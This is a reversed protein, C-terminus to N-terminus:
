EWFVIAHYYLALILLDFLLVDGWFFLRLLLALIPAMLVLLRQIWQSLAQNLTEPNSLLKSVGALMSNLFTLVLETENESDKIKKTPLLSHIFSLEYADLQYARSSTAVALEEELYRVCDSWIDLEVESLKTAPAFPVVALTSDIFLCDHSSVPPASPQHSLEKTALKLKFSIFLTETFHFASFMIFSAVLFLRFPPTYYTRRGHTYERPVVGPKTLLIRLTRWVRGDM